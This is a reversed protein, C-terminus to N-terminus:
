WTKLIIPYLDEWNPNMKEILALKSKRSGAKLQKERDIAEEISHFLEFYVLKNLNYKGTFSSKYKKSIHDDIRTILDSTVGTYLTGHEKNTMIYVAGGKGNM